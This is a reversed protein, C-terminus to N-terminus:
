GMSVKKRLAKLTGSVVLVRVAVPADGIRTISALAARVMNLATHKTRIVAFGKEVDYEILALETQSAGYEGFLKTVASWVSEIFERQNIKSVTELQAALYRRRVGKPM